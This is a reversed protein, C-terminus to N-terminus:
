ASPRLAILSILRNLTVERELAGVIGILEDVAPGPLTTAALRRFKREIETTTL